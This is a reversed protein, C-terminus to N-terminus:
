EGNVKERAEGPMDETVAMGSLGKEAREALMRAIAQAFLPRDGSAFIGRGPNCAMTYTLAWEIEAALAEEPCTFRRTM